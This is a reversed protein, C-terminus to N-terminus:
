HKKFIRSYRLLLNLCFHIFSGIHNNDMAHFNYSQHIMKIILGEQSKNRNICFYRKLKETFLIEELINLEKPTAKKGLCYDFYELDEKTFPIIM